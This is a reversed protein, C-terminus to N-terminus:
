EEEDIYNEIRGAFWRRAADDSDHGDMRDDFDDDLGDEDSPDVEECARDMAREAQRDQGSFDKM